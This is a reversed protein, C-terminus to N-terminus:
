KRCETFEPLTQPFICCVTPRRCDVPLVDRHLRHFIVICRKTTQLKGKTLLGRKGWLYKRKVLKDRRQLWREQEIKFFFVSLIM